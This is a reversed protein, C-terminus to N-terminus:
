EINTPNPINAPHFLTYLKEATQTQTADQEQDIYIETTAPNSHRMYHQAVYINDGTVQMVGTGATHRLSHATLTPSDYGAARMAAKLMKSITTPAIRGSSRNGTAVFLPSTGGPRDSRTNLYDKVARYVEMALPKKTDAEAHGKGWIMIYASNGMCVLDKVNARSLEVTRLGANVALLYLARLRAAQEDARQVRGATDKRNAAASDRKAASQTDIAQEIAFVAAPTLADKKHKNSRIRPAHVNAAINPYRDTSATWEFFQKVSRLYQAATNASCVTRCVNGARDRRYTWRGAHDLQIAEHETILWERFAIVDARQPKMCEKYQLWAWFQRLNIIYTRTTNPSRDIWEVFEAFLAARMEQATQLPAARYVDLPTGMEQAMQQATALLAAEGKQTNHYQKYKNYVPIFSFYLVEACIIKCIYNCM